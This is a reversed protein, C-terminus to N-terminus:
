LTVGAPLGGSWDDNDDLADWAMDLWGITRWRRGQQFQVRVSRIALVALRAWLYRPTFACREAFYAVALFRWIGRLRITVMVENM